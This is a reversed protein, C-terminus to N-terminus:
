GMRSSQLAGSESSALPEATICGVFLGRGNARGFLSRWEKLLYGQVPAEYGVAQIRDSEEKRGKVPSLVM